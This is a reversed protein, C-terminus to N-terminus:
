GPIRAVHLPAAMKPNDPDSVLVLDITGTTENFRADIGELKITPDELRYIAVLEGRANIVGVISGAIQGKFPGDVAEAAGTFVLRQAPDGHVADIDTFDIKAQHRKRGESITAYGLDYTVPKALLELQGIKLDTYLSRLVEGLSLRILMNPAPRGNKGVSNGRQALVLQDGYVTIGEINLEGVTVVSKQLYEHLGEFSIRSPLGTIQGNEDRSYVVGASRRNGGWSMGGSGVVMVVGHSFRRVLEARLKADRISQLNGTRVLTLAEFDPKAEARAGDELPMEESIIRWARGPALADGNTGGTRLARQVTSWPLQFSGIAAQDDGVVLLTDGRPTWAAGSAASLYPPENPDPNEIQLTGLQIVPLSQM